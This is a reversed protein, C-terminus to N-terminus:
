IPLSCCREDPPLSTRYGEGHRGNYILKYTTDAPSTGILHRVYAAFRQWQTLGADGPTDTDYARDILGFNVAEQSVTDAGAFETDALPQARM